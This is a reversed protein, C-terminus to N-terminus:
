RGEGLAHLEGTETNIRFWWDQWGVNYVKSLVAAEYGRNVGLYNFYHEPPQKIEHRKAGSLEYLSIRMSSPDRGALTVVVAQTACHLAQQVDAEVISVAHGGDRWVVENGSIVSEM